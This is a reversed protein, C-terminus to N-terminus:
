TLGPSIWRDADGPTATSACSARALDLSLLNGASGAATDATAIRAGVLSLLELEIDVHLGLAVRLGHASASTDDSAAGSAVEVVLSASTSDLLLADLADWLTGAGLAELLQRLDVGVGLRLLHEDLTLSVLSGVVGQPLADVDLEGLGIEQGGVTVDLAGSPGAVGVQVVGDLLSLGATSVEAEPASSGVATCTTRSQVADLRLLDIGLAGLGVGAVQSQSVIDWGEATGVPETLGHVAGLDLSVLGAVDVVSGSAPLDARFCTGSDDTCSEPSGPQPSAGASLAFPASSLPAGPPPTGAELDDGVAVSFLPDVLLSPVEGIASVVPDLVSEIVRNLRLAGLLSGVLSDDSVEVSLGFDGGETEWGSSSALADSEGTVDARAPAAFGILVLVVALAALLGTRRARFRTSTM